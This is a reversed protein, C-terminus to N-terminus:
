LQKLASMIDFCEADFSSVMAGISSDTTSAPLPTCDFMSFSDQDQNCIRTAVRLYDSSEGIYSGCEDDSVSGCSSSDSLSISQSNRYRGGYISSVPELPATTDSLYSIPTYANSLPMSFSTPPKPQQCHMTMRAVRAQNWVDLEREYREKEQAAKAEFKAKDDPELAKWSEAVSRALDAFGIKGHSRRPKYSPQSTNRLIREREYRFFLNYASLPRKPKDSKDKNAKSKSNSRKSSTSTSTKNPTIAM